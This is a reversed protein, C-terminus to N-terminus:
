ESDIGYKHCVRLFHDYATGAATALDNITNGAEKRSKYDWQGSLVARESGGQSPFTNLAQFNRFDSLAALLKRYAKEAHSNDMGIEDTEILHIVKDVKDLDKFRYGNWITEDKLLYIVSGTPRLLSYIRRFIKKDHISPGPPRRHLLFDIIVFATIVCAIIIVFLLTGNNRTWAKVSHSTVLAIIGTISLIAGVAAFLHNFIRAVVISSGEHRRRRRVEDNDVGM